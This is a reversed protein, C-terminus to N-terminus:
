KRRIRMIVNSFGVFTDFLAVSTGRKISIGVNIRANRQTKIPIYGPGNIAIEELAASANSFM